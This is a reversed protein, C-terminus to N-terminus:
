LGGWARASREADVKNLLSDKVRYRTRASRQLLM